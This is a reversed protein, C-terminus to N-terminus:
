APVYVIIATQGALAGPILVVGTDFDVTYDGGAGSDLMQPVGDLILIFFGGDSPIQLTTLTGDVLLTQREQAVQSSALSTNIVTTESIPAACCSCPM